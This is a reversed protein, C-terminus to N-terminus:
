KVWILIFAIISILKYCCLIINGVHKRHTSEGIFTSEIQLFKSDKVFLFYNPVFLVAIILPYSLKNGVIAEIPIRAICINILELLVLLNLFELITVLFVSTWEPIDDMDIKKSIRYVNYFLYEITKM